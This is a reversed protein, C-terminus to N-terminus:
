GPAIRPPAAIALTLAASLWLTAQWWGQWIGFSLEAGVLASAITALCIATELQGSIHTLVCRITWLLLLGALVAGPLGLEVWIQLTANHPHLPVVEAATTLGDRSTKIVVRDNTTAISRSADLGWGLWPRQQSRGAVYDWIRLRHNIGADVYDASALARDFFPTILPLAPAALTLVIVVGALAVATARRFLAALTCVSLGVLIAFTPATSNLRSLVLISGVVLAIAAARSRYRWAALAAPWVTVSLVSAGRNYNAFDNGQPAPGHLLTTVPANAFVEILLLILVAFTSGALALGILRRAAPDLNAAAHLTVTAAVAILALRAFERLSRQPDIAWFASLAAWLLIAALLLILPTRITPLAARGFVGLLLLATGVAAGLPALGLPALAALPPALLALAVLPFLVLQQGHGLATTTQSPPAPSERATM